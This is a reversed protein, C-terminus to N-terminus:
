LAAQWLRFRAQGTAERVLGDGVLARAAMNVAQPTLSHLRAVAKTSVVSSESVAAIMARAAKTNAHAEARERWLSQRELLLGAQQAGAGFAEVGAQLRAPVDYGLRLGAQRRLAAAWPAFGLPSRGAIRSAVISATVPDEPASLGLFRWARHLIVARLVRHLGAVRHAVALWDHLGQDLENGQPRPFLTEDNNLELDFLASRGLGLFQRLGVVDMKGPLFAQRTRSLRNLAWLAGQDRPDRAARVGEAYLALRDRAGADGALWMADAAEDHAMRLAAGAVMPDFSLRTELQALAEATQAVPELIEPLRAASLWPTLWEELSAPAEPGEDDALVDDHPAFWPAEPEVEDRWDNQDADNGDPDDAANPRKTPPPQM